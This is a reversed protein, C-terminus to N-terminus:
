YPLVSRLCEESLHVLIAHLIPGGCSGRRCAGDRPRVEWLAYLTFKTSTDSQISSKENGGGVTPILNKPRYRKFVDMVYREDAMLSWTSYHLRGTPMEMVPIWKQSVAWDLREEAESLHTPRGVRCMDVLYEVIMRERWATACRYVAREAIMQWRRCAGLERRNCELEHRAELCDGANAQAWELLRTKSEAQIDDVSKTPIRELRRRWDALIDAKTRSPDKDRRTNMEAAKANTTTLLAKRIQAQRTSFEEQAEHSVLDSRWQGHPMYSRKLDFRHLRARLEHMYIQTALYPFDRFYFRAGHIGSFHPAGNKEWQTINFVLVHSSLHPDYERSFGDRLISYVMNDTSLDVQTQGGKGMRARSYRIEIERMTALVADDHAATIDARTMNRPLEFGDMLALMSISKPASFAWSFCLVKHKQVIKKGAADCGKLLNVMDDRGIPQGEEFGLYPATKGYVRVGVSDDAQDFYYNTSKDYFYDAIGVPDQKM